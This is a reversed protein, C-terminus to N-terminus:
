KKNLLIKSLAMNVGGLAHVVLFVACITYAVTASIMTIILNSTVIKLGLFVVLMFIGILLPRTVIKKIDLYFLRTCVGYIYQGSSVVSLILGTLAAGILQYYYILPIGTFITVLNGTFVEILNVKEFGNAVLLYGLPRTFSTVLLGVAMINLAVIGEAFTADGYFLVLTEEGIFFIGIILPLAVCLLIGIIMEALDRQKEKGLIVSKSMAPFVAVVLSHAIIEFPQMLQSVAGYLGIVVETSLLSLIIVLMRGKIVAMGEIVIFTRAYKLNTWMFNWEIQWQPKVSPIILLLQILLILTESIVMFGCVFNLNYKLTIAWAILLTRLVYIPTTSITILYMKEQAQFIAETINSLSFPVIMLGLIYCVISTDSSYPMILVLVFLGVYGILSLFLQLLSGSILYTSTQEPYRSLERTFLTKLGQSICTMFLYYYNFALTYQGLNYPGLIRAILAILIFSTVSQTLRNILIALSNGIIKRNEM